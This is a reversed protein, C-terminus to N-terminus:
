VAGAQWATDDSGAMGPCGVTFKNDNCYEANTQRARCAKCELKDEQCCQVKEPCGAQGELNNKMCYLEITMGGECAKCSVDEAGGQCLKECLPNTASSIAAQMKEREEKQVKDCDQQANRANEHDAWNFNHLGLQEETPMICPAHTNMCNKSPDTGMGSLLISACCHNEVQPFESCTPYDDCKKCFQSCCVKRDTSVIGGSCTPDGTGDGPRGDVKARRLVKHISFAHASAAVLLVLLLPTYQSM